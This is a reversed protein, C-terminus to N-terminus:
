WLHTWECLADAAASCCSLIEEELTNCLWRRGCHNLGEKAEKRSSQRICKWCGDSVAGEEPAPAKWQLLAAITRKAVTLLIPILLFNFIISESYHPTLHLTSSYDVLLRTLSIDPARLGSLAQSSHCKM